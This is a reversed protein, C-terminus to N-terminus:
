RINKVAKEAFSNDVLAEYPAEKELEGATKMVEQLLDLSEKKMNPDTCWTDQEKYRRAVTTLLEM